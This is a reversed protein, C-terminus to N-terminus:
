ESDPDAPGSVRLHVPCDDKVAMEVGDDTHRYGRGYNNREPSCTCGAETANPAGPLLPIGDIYPFKVYRGDPLPSLLYEEGSAKITIVKEAIGEQQEASWKEVLDDVQSTVLMVQGTGDDRHPHGSIQALGEKPTYTKGNVVWM